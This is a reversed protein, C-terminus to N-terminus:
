FLYAVDKNKKSKLPIVISAGVAGGLVSYGFDEASRTGGISPDIAEKLLGAAAAAGFGIFWSKVKDDTKKFVLYSTIGSIVTGYIFHEPHGTESFQAKLELSSYLTIIVAIYLASSQILRKSCKAHILRNQSKNLIMIYLYLMQRFETQVHTAMLVLLNTRPSKEIISM